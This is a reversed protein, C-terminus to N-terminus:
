GWVEKIKGLAKQSLLLFDCDLLDRVNLNQWLIASASPINRAAKLIGEESGDVAILVKGELGLSKFTSVVNKTKPEFESLDIVRLNGSSAKESLLSFIAKRREEQPMKMEFSRPRPGFTM